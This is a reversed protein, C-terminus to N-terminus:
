RGKESTFIKGKGEINQVLYFITNRYRHGCAAKRFRVRKKPSSPVGDELLGNGLMKKKTFIEDCSDHWFSLFFYRVEKLGAFVCYTGNLVLWSNFNTIRQHEGGYKPPATLLPM